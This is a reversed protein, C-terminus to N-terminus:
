RQFRFTVCVIKITYGNLLYAKGELIKGNLYTHNRSQLDEIQYLNRVPSIIAHHHSVYIDDLVIDNEKGRGISIAHSFSIKKNKFSPDAAEMVILAVENATGDKKNHKASELNSTNKLDKFMYKVTYFVFGCICLLMGYQVAVIVVKNVM